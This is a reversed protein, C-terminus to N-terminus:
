RRTWAGGVASHVLTLEEGGRARVRFCIQDNGDASTEVWRGLVGVIDYTIGAEMFSTPAYPWGRARRVGVLLEEISTRRELGSEIRLERITRELADFFGPTSSDPDLVVTLVQDPGVRAAILEKQTGAIHVMFADGFRYRTMEEHMASLLVLLQAGAIKADFPPISSCYDVCEGDWDVFTVAQVHRFNEHLERLIPTFASEKQDRVFEPPRESIATM